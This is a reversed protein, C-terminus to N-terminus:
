KSLEIVAALHRLGVVDGVLSQFRPQISPGPDCLALPPPGLRVPGGQRALELTRADRDEPLFRM